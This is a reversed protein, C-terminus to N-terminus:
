NLKELKKLIEQYQSLLRDLKEENLIGMVKHVRMLNRMQSEIKIKEFILDKKEKENDM